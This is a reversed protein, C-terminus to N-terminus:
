KSEGFPIKVIFFKNTNPIIAVAKTAVAATASAEMLLPVDVVCLVVVVSGVLPVDVVLLVVVVAGAGAGVGAGPALLVLVVVVSAFPLLVVFVWVVAGAWCYYPKLPHKATGQRHYFFGACAPNKM